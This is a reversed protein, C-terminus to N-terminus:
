RCFSLRLFSILFSWEGDLFHYTLFGDTGAGFLHLVRWFKM